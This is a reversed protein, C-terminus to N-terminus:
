RTKKNTTVQLHKTIGWVNELVAGITERGQTRGEKREEKKMERLHGSKNGSYKGKSDITHQHQRPHSNTNEISCVRHPQVKVRLLFSSVKACPFDSLNQAAVSCPEKQQAPKRPASMGSTQSMSNQSKWTDGSSGRQEQHEYSPMSQIHRRKRQFTARGRVRQQHPSNTKHKVPDAAIVSRM